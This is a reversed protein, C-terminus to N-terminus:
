QSAVIKVWQGVTNAKVKADYMSYVHWGPLYYEGAYSANLKVKVNVENRNNRHYWYYNGLTFYSVVRDDRIDQYEIGEPLELGQLRENSIQWGSPMILELALNELRYDRHIGRVRVNAIFDEGQPLETIDLGRGDVDSFYVQIDVGESHAVENANAPIGINALLAYFPENSENTIDVTITDETPNELVQQMMPSLLSVREVVGKNIQWTLAQNQHTNTKSFYNGLAMLAWATSHTSYWSERSLDNAAQQAAEWAQTTQSMEAYVMSLVATDRLSSGYTYGAWQYSYTTNAGLAMLDRAANIVGAKGYAAALLWRALRINADDNGSRVTQSLQEKLRNMANFNTQNALTLLYLTYADTGEYGPNAGLNQARRQQAILWNSLVAAPVFYGLRKAELLLHGAYNNSWTNSYSGNPWYNFDGAASQFRAFKGMGANINSEIEQKQKDSLSTLSSLYLQPFLKATTQELCGHPYGILYQLRNELDIQPVRSVELYTHNTNLMGNPTLTLNVTQGPQVVSSKSVQQNLNATRIPIDITQSTSENGSRAIVTVSAAGIANTTRIQLNAIQDGPQAFRVQTRSALVEINDTATVEIDVVEIGAETVFVNVPMAVTENPGLVRPLTTLLTLPQTVTVTKEARGYAARGADKGPTGQRGAVVMIRVAGMYEPLEIQHNAKSNAALQFPGLFKVVPPFRRRRRSDDNEEGEDSGGITILRKLESSNDRPLLDYMDWTLVGLSERRYLQDHPNPTRYNTIGLLGEDVVALTYTMAKGRVETIGIDFISQPRVKEAVDIVPQLHTEPDAVHLPVIGYLRVPSDNAKTLYPQILTIHAYVNPAMSAHIPLSYQGNILDDNIWRQEL